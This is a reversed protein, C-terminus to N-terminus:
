HSVIYIYNMSCISVYLTSYGVGYFTFYTGEPPKIVVSSGDNIAGLTTDNVASGYPYFTSLPIGIGLAACMLLLQIKMYMYLPMDLGSILTFAIVSKM